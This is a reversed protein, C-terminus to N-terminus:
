LSPRTSFDRNNFLISIILFPIVIKRSYCVVQKKLQVNNYPRCRAGLPAREGQYMTSLAPAAAQILMCSLSVFFFSIRVGACYCLAKIVAVRIVCVLETKVAWHILISFPFDICIHRFDVCYKCNYFYMCIFADVQQHQFNEFTMFTNLFGMTCAYLALM